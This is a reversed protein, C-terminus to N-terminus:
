KAVLSDAKQSLICSTHLNYLAIEIGLGALLKVLRFVVLHEYVAKPQRGINWGLMPDPVGAGEVSHPPLSNEEATM